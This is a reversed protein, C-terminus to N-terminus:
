HGCALSDLRNGQLDFLLTFSSRRLPNEYANRQMRKQRRSMEIICSEAFTHLEFVFKRMSKRVEAAAVDGCGEKLVQTIKNVFPFTGDCVQCLGGSNHILFRSEVYTYM